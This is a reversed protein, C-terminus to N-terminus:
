IPGFLFNVVHEGMRGQHMCKLFSHNCGPLVKFDYETNLDSARAADAMAQIWAKGRELRNLGQQNDIRESKNLEVDRHKDREGVIVCAPISLFRSSSFIIHRLGKAKKIGRPYNVNSDPFTYWGAAAVVIRAVNQPYAMAYRHAFQGGGSYGFMYLSDTNAGTLLGVEKIIRQFALDAREGKEKRGLRQYDCFYKKPFLPAILVVGYREAFPAFEEAHEKAMRAVGHVTIFVPAGICVSRPVYLFYEQKPELILKRKVVKGAYSPTYSNLPFFNNKM